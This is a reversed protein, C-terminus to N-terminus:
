KKFIRYTFEYQESTKGITSRKELLPNWEEDYVMVGGIREIVKISRFNESNVKYTIYEFHVNKQAWDITTKVMEKGYWKGQSGTKVRLGIIPTVTHINTLTIRWIFEKTAKELVIFDKVIGENMKQIAEQINKETEEINKSPAFRMDKTVEENFENFIETAYAKTTPVLLLRETEITINKINKMSIYIIIFAIWERVYIRM